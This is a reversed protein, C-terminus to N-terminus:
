SRKKWAALAALIAGLGAAAPIAANAADGTKVPEKGSGSGTGSGTSDKKKELKVSQLAKTAADVEEQTAKEDNLVRVAENYAAMFAAASEDTYIKINDVIEKSADIAAKLATKDVKEPNVGPEEQPIAFATQSTTKNGALTNRFLSYYAAASWSFNKTHLGAGTEPNYNERIPGDGLLGEANDFLKYAMDRAENLYGYNQLAEVGYMAQDLWVPGRWYRNPDFKDNDKSATPFPVLLNFKNADIMNNKVQEAIEKTAMKAWLPIWGETGKGRNTLLKKESGDANTQLDYYFGTEEDFMNTNVYDLLVKAEQEYKAADAELGLEKAISYLFGKEAYLYANLDVSEQNISYGVVEGKANRNPYVLVGVDDPGNGEVDFRTANDMGSEWAAAEIIADSNFMAEGNEDRMINGEGDYMYHTDHVMAGYEAVGNKDVDRNTYWWNHYAVLKPYMEALFDKNNTSKYANYVAWASLAPKSNRENWNGGDGGRAYDKNYFICDPIMGADQPRIEDDSQIQYDFLARVNDQALEGNFVSAGVVQKWSDWAWLGIFWQYSMSPVVGDHKLAGAASRWNTTITEISKVAANKYAKGPNAIDAFTKDLYGQWRENNEAFYKEGNALMDAVKGTEAEAEAKTFTYSQTSWTTFSQGAEIVVPANMVSEYSTLDESVTTTVPQDFEINFKNEETTMWSWTSRITKFNVAVGKETAALSTGLSAGRSGYTTFINGQWKVQLDLKEETKNEINAKILATRNSAFILELKLIIDKMDYTQVLRGPYYAADVDANQLDYVKGEKDAIVIKSVADSLNSPYEEGIIVPGAFGGYLDKANLDHLYYGHWAGLDAFNNFKNTSYAGYIVETPDAYVNLVNKFDEVKDKTVAIAPIQPIASVVVAAACATSLVAKWSSKRKM